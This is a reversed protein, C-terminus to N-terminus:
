PTSGPVSQGPQMPTGPTVQGPSSGQPKGTSPLYSEISMSLMDERVAGMFTEKIKGERNFIIVTPDMSVHYKELEGKNQPNDYDVNVWVVKGQYKKQLKDVVPKMESYSKSSKGLFVMVKPQGGGSGCGAVAFAALLAACALLAAFSIFTKLRM